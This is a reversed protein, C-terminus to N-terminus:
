GTPSAKAALWVQRLRRAEGDAEEALRIAELLRQAAEQARTARAAMIASDRRWYLISPAAVADFEQAPYRARFHLRVAVRMAERYAILAPPACPEKPTPLGLPPRVPALRPISRREVVGDSQVFRRFETRMAALDRDHIVRGALDALSWRLTLGQRALYVAVERIAFEDSYDLLLYGLLQFLDGQDVAASQRAKADVLCHGLILDGDAGGVDPSGDFVPNLVTPGGQGVAALSSSVLRALRSVDAAWDDDVQDLIDAVTRCPWLPALLETPRVRSRFISEFVGLIVCTKAVDRERPGDVVEGTALAHTAFDFFEEIVESPIIPERVLHPIKCSRNCPHAPALRFGVARYMESGPKAFTTQPDLTGFLARLRYDFAM